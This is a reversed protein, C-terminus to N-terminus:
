ELGSSDSKETDAVHEDNIKSEENEDLSVENDRGRIWSVIMMVLFVVAVGLTMVEDLPGLAGHAVIIRMEM